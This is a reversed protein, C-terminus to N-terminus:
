DQLDGEMRELRELRDRLSPHTAWLRRIGAADRVPLFHFIDNPAARRLDRERTQSLGDSLAIMAGAVAAPSGTLLAAGRDATLERHRSVIRAVGMMLVAAPLLWGLYVVVGVTGGITGEDDLTERVGRFFLVPVGAVLTMVLADRNVVHSIEHALVAELQTDDLRDLLGTTAHIAPRGRLTTTTWCLPARQSEARASPAAVDALMALRGVAHALREDDAPTRPRAKKAQRPTRRSAQTGLLVFVVGFIALVYNVEVAIWVLFAVVAALVVGTLLLATAMRITLGLDRGM